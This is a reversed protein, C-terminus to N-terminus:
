FIPDYESAAVAGAKQLATFRELNKKADRAAIKAQKLNAQWVRDDIQLLQQNKEIRDGRDAMLGTIRGAKEASLVANVNAEIMAPLYVIDVTNTLQVSLTSVAVAAEKTEPLEKANPKLVALLVILLVIIALAGYLITKPQIPKNKM